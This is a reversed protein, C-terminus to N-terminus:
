AIEVLNKATVHSEIWAQWNFPGFLEKTNSASLLKRLEAFAANTESKGSVQPLRRMFFAALSKQDGTGHNKNLHYSWARARYHLLDTNGSEFLIAFGLLPVVWKGRRTILENFYLQAKRHNGTYTASLTLSEFLIVELSNQFTHKHRTIKSILEEGHKLAAPYDRQKLLQSVYGNLVNVYREDLRMNKHRTPLDEYFKLIKSFLAKGEEHRKMERCANILNGVAVVYEAANHHLLTSDSEYLDLFKKRIVYSKDWRDLFRYAVALISWAEKRLTYSESGAALIKETEAAIKALKKKYVPTISDAEHIIAWLENNQRRLLQWRTCQDAVCASKELFHKTLGRRPHATANAIRSEWEYCKAMDLIKDHQEALKTAKALCKHVIPLQKKRYLLDVQILRRAIQIEVSTNAHFNEQSRLLIELTYNKIRKFAAPDKLGTKKKALLEDYREQTAICNFLNIYHKDEESNRDMGAFLMFHRKENASLSHILDFLESSPTKMCSVVLYLWLNRKWICAPFASKSRPNQRKNTAVAEVPHAHKFKLM